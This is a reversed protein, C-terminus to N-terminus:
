SLIQPYLRICSTLVAIIGNILLFYQLFKRKGDSLKEVWKYFRPYAFMLLIVGLVVGIMSGLIIDGLFHVGIYLRTYSGLVILSAWIFATKRSFYYAFMTMALAVTASHGSPFSNYREGHETIYHIPSRNEFIVPPRHWESFVVQKLFGILFLLIIMGLILNILLAPNKRFIICVLIGSVLVGDGLHTLHPMLMDFFTSHYRNLMLFSEEYGWIILLLSGLIWFILMYRFFAKLQHIPIKTTNQM